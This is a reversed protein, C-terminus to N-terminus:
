NHIPKKSKSKQKSTKKSKAKTKKWLYSQTVSQSARRQIHTSHYERTTYWPCHMKVTFCRFMHSCTDMSM